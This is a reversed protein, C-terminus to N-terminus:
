MLREQHIRLHVAETSREMVTSEKTGQDMLGLSFEKAMFTEMKGNEQISQITIIGQLEWEMLYSDQVISTVKTSDGRKTHLGLKTRLIITSLLLTLNRKTM